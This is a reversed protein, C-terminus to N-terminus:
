ICQSLDYFCVFKIILSGTDICEGTKPIRAGGYPCLCSTNGSEEVVCPHDNPCPDIIEQGCGVCEATLQVNDQLIDNAYFLWICDASVPSRAETFCM